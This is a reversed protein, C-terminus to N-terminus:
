WWMLEKLNDVPADMEAHDTMHVLLCTVEVLRMTLLLTDRSKRDTRMIMTWMRSFVM